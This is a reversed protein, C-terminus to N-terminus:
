DHYVEPQASSLPFSVRFVAGGESRRGATITGGHVKMIARCIALGLGVGQRAPRGSVALRDFFFQEGGSPLGPGNDILEITLDHNAARGEVRVASHPPTHKSVNELLNVFLQEVLVGDVKILPLDEPLAVLIQRRGLLSKTREVASGVLEEISQWEINLHLGGVELRSLDLVNRVIRLLRNSEENVTEAM